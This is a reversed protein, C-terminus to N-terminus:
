GISVAIFPAVPTRRTREEEVVPKETTHTSNSQSVSMYRARCITPSRRSLAPCSSGSPTSCGIMPGCDEMRPSAMIIPRVASVVDKISSRRRASFTILGFSNDTTPTDWTDTIPPSIGSYRMQRSGSRIRSKSILRLSTSSAVSCILSLAPAPM